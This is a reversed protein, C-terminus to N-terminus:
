AAGRSCRPPWIFAGIQHYYAQRLVFYDTDQWLSHGPVMREADTRGQHYRLWFEEKSLHRYYRALERFWARQFDFPHLLRRRARCWRDRAEALRLALTMARAGESCGRDM